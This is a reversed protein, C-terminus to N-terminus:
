CKKNHEVNIILVKIKILWGTPKERWLLHGSRQDTTDIDMHVELLTVANTPLIKLWSQLGGLCHCELWM